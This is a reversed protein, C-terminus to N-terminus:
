TFCWCRPKDRPWKSWEDQLLFLAQVQVCVKQSNLQLGSVRIEMNRRLSKAVDDYLLSKEVEVIQNNSVIYSPVTRGCMSLTLRVAPPKSLMEVTLSGKFKWLWFFSKCSGDCCKEDMTRRLWTKDTGFSVPITNTEKVSITTNDEYYYYAPIKLHRRYYLRHNPLFPDDVDKTLSGTGIHTCGLGWMVAVIALTLRVIM